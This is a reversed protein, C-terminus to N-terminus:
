LLGKNKLEDLLGKVLVLNLREHITKEDFALLEKYINVIIDISANPSLENFENGKTYKDPIDENFLVGNDRNLYKRAVFTYEERNKEVIQKREEPSLLNQKKFAKITGPDIQKSYALLSKVLKNKVDFSIPSKNILLKFELADRSLRPNAKSDPLDFKDSLKWQFVYHLFDAFISGEFFQNSEYPRVILKGPNFVNVCDSIFSKYSYKPAEKYFEQITRTEEGHKIRQSYDAELLEDHRRLYIVLCLNHEPFVKNAFSRLEKKCVPFIESTLLIDKDQLEKVEDIMKSEFYAPPKPNKYLKGKYRDGSFSFALYHHSGEDKNMGTYPIYVNNKLFLSRNKLFFRQLATTGTKAIGM